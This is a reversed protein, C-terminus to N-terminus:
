RVMRICMPYRFYHGKSGAITGKIIGVVGLVMVGIALPIGILIAALLASLMSYLFLSIQFNIVEKGTDDLFPSEKRKILWLVLAPVVPFVMMSVITSLHMFLGWTRHAESLNPAAAESAAAPEAFSDQAVADIPMAYDM